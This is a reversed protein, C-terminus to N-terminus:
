ANRVATGGGYRFRDDGYPDDGFRGRRGAPAPAVFRISM